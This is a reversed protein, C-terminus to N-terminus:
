SVETRRARECACLIPEGEKKKTYTGDDKTLKTIYRMVQRDNIEVLEGIRRYAYIATAHDRNFVRGIESYNWIYEMRLLYIICHRIITLPQKRSNSSWLQNATAGVDEALEEANKFLQRTEPTWFQSNLARDATNTQTNM